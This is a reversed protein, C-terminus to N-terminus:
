LMEVAMLERGLAHLASEIKKVQAPRPRRAGSAYHHLQKQHIGTMNELASKSFIPRYYELLSVPDFKFIIKFEGRLAAPINKTENNELFLQLSEEASKKAEAPTDGMGWIGDVKEGYASYTGDKAREIIVKIEKM